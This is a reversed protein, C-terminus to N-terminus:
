IRISDVASKVENECRVYEQSAFTMCEALRKMENLLETMISQDKGMQTRFAWNAQGKWMANLEGIENMMGELSSEARATVQELEQIDRNLQETDIEIYTVAM